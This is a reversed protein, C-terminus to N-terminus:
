GLALIREILVRHSFLLRAAYGDAAVSEIEDWSVPASDLPWPTGRLSYPDIMSRSRENQRWDILVKGSM